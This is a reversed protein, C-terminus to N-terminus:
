KSNSLLVAAASLITALPTVILPAFKASESRPRPLNENPAVSMMMSLVEADRILPTKLLNGSLETNVSLPFV